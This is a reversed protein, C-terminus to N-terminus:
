EVVNLLESPINECPVTAFSHDRLVDAYNHAFCLGTRSDKLYKIGRVVLEADDQRQKMEVNKVRINRAEWVDKWDFGILIYMCAVTAVFLSFLSILVRRM